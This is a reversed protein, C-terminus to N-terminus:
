SARGASVPHRMREVLVSALRAPADPHEALFLLPEILELEMLVFEGDVVCGDVRAYLSDSAGAHLARRAQEVVHGGPDGRMASGGHEFQVRFDGRRARKLMAHSFEGGIFVLSWEGAAVVAEMFPQVLVRGRGVLARFRAEDAAAAHRSTRWTEHASASIAPKVVAADWAADHLVDHLTAVSNREVWRTPVIRVGREGLERLYSKEANWRIIAPPNWLAVGARELSTVWALFEDHRLHYDWCSRIVVADFTTWDVSPDSWVAATAHVGRAALAPILLQDDSYADPLAAQTALAVRPTASM